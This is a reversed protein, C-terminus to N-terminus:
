HGPIGAPLRRPAQICLRKSRGRAGSLLRVQARPVQFAEALFAMLSANARGDVPPARLQIKIAEGLPEAFADRHARPQVRVQLILDEGQWQYWSM